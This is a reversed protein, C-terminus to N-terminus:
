LDESEAPCRSLPPSGRDHKRNLMPISGSAQRILFTCFMLPNEMGPVSLFSVMLRKASSM